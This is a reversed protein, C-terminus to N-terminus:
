AGKKDPPTEKNKSIKKGSLMNDTMYKVGMIELTNMKLVDQVLDGILKAKTELESTM